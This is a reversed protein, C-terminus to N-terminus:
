PGTAVATFTVTSGQLVTQPVPNVVFAPPILVNIFANSSVTSGNLDTAVVTYHGHHAASVNTFTYTGNTANPINAGEFRWQYTVPGRSNVTAAVLTLNTGPVVNQNTPHLTFYPPCNSCTLGKIAAFWNTGLKNYGFQTPHLTDPLDALTIVSRLDTFYVSLGQSRLRECMAPVIPNFTTLIQTEWADPRPLLNGVIVKVGPWNTTMRVILAELRNTAHDPDDGSGRYDNTGLFVMIIDPDPTGAFIVPLISDINRITYGSYGEHEPDPLSPASNGTQTGAFDMFYGANTMLQYLPARFGGAAGLGYTISDGLPIIRLPKPLITVINTVSNTQQSAPLSSDVAHVYCTYSGSPQRGLNLRYPPSSVTGVAQANVYFTISYPSTGGAVAATLSLSANYAFSFGKPPLLSAALPGDIHVVSSLSNSTWGRADTVIARITHDGVPLGGLDREYPPATLPSGSPAGDLYFQVRYPQTGGSVSASAVVPNTYQFTSGTAPTVLTFSLPDVISFVNTASGATAAPVSNDTTVAYINYSGSPLAGLNVSYPATASSGASTFIQNGAGSNTFYEITYPPNGNAVAALAALASGSLIASDQAPAIVACSYYTPLGATIRLSFNDFQNAVDDGSASSNDDALLFYFSGGNTWNVALNASLLVSSNASSFSNFAPVSTWSNAQGTLSFYARLGQSDEPTGGAAITYFYSIRIQSANTGTSNLFKGMLVTYRNGTPRLQLYQGSSSWVANGAKAPPNGSDATVPATVGAATINANLDADMDYADAPAGTRNFTAWDAASPQTSFANTYGAAGVVAAPVARTLLLLTAFIPAASILSRFSLGFHKM